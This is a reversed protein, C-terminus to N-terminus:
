GRTSGGSGGGRPPELAATLTWRRGSPDQKCTVRHPFVNSSFVKHHKQKHKHRHKHKHKHKHKNINNINNNTTESAPQSLRLTSTWVVSVTPWRPSRFHYEVGFLPAFFPTFRLFFRRVGCTIFSITPIKDLNGQAFQALLVSWPVRTCKEGPFRLFKTWYGGNVIAHVRPRSDCCRARLFSTWSKWTLVARAVQERRLVAGGSGCRASSTECTQSFVKFFEEKRVDEM